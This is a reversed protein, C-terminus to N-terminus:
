WRFSSKDVEVAGRDGESARLRKWDGAAVLEVKAEVEVRFGGCCVSDGNRV